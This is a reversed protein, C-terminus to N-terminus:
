NYIIVMELFFSFDYFFPWTWYSRRFSKFLVVQIMWLLLGWGSMLIWRSVKGCCQQPWPTRKRNRCWRPDATYSSSAIGHFRPIIQLSCVRCLYTVTVFFLFLTFGSVNGCAATRTLSRSATNSCKTPLTTEGTRQANTCQLPSFLKWAFVQLM